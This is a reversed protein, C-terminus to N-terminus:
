WKGVYLVEEELKFGKENYVRKKIFDIIKRIESSKANERNIIINAHYDSIMAGGVKYGRLKLSDIIKGSPEGFARNNKFVSGACPYRYHGKKERDNKHELMKNEIEKKNGKELKFKASLIIKKNNQFPSIKYAFDDKQPTYSIINNNKDLYIVETLLESISHEYCRANMRIAGGISSPLGYLFEMNKLGNKQSALCLNDITAGAEATIIQNKTDIEIKSFNKLSIVPEEIGKDSVLINAGYGLILFNEEGINKLEEIIKILEKINKPFLIIEANGGTKFTSWNKMNEDLLYEINNIKELFQSLNNM